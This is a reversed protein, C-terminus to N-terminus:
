GHKKGKDQAKSYTALLTNFTDTASTGAEVWVGAKIGDFSWKQYEYPFHYAEMKHEPALHPNLGLFPSLPKMIPAKFFPTKSSLLSGALPGGICMGFYQKDPM